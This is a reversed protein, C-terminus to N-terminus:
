WEGSVVAGGCGSPLRRRTFLRACFDGPGVGSWVPIGRSNDPQVQTLTTSAEEEGRGERDSQVLAPAWQNSQRVPMSSPPQAPRTNGMNVLLITHRTRTWTNTPPRTQGSRVGGGVPPYSPIPPTSNSVHFSVAGPDLDSDQHTSIIHADMCVYMCVVLGSGLGDVFSASSALLAVCRLPDIGGVWGLGVAPRGAPQDTARLQKTEIKTCPM